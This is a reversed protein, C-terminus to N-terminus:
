LEEGDESSVFKTEGDYGKLSIVFLEEMGEETIPFGKFQVPESNVTKVHEWHTGIADVKISEMMEANVKISQPIGISISADNIKESILAMNKHHKEAQSDSATNLALQEFPLYDDTDMEMAEEKPADDYILGLKKDVEADGSGVHYARGTDESSDEAIEDKVPPTLTGEIGYKVFPMDKLQGDIKDGIMNMHTTMVGEADKAGTFGILSKLNEETVMEDYDIQVSINIYGKKM